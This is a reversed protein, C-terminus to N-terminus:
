TVFPLPSCMRLSSLRRHAWPELHLLLLGTKRPFPFLLLSPPLPLCCRSSPLRFVVDDLSQSGAVESQAQAAITTFCFTAFECSLAVRQVIVRVGMHATRVVNAIERPPLHRIVLCVHFDGIQVM